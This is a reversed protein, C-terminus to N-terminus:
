MDAIGTFMKVLAFLAEFYSVFTDQLSAQIDENEPYQSIDDRLLPM